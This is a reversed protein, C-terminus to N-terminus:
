AAGPVGGALVVGRQELSRLFRLVDREIDGRAAGYRRQLEDVIEGVAFGGGLLEVIEAATGDLGLGREPCLLMAMGGVRDFRMRVGPALRPRSDADIM